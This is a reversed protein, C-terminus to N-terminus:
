VTKLLYLEPTKYINQESTEWLPILHQFQEELDVIGKSSKELIILNIQPYNDIFINLKLMDEENLRAKLELFDGAKWTYFDELLKIDPSYSAFVEHKLPFSISEYEYKVNNFKLIRCFNAEVMSRTYHSLDKRYGDYGYSHGLAGMALKTDVGKSIIHNILTRCMNPADPFLAHYMRTTLKHTTLHVPSIRKVFKLCFRCYIYNDSDIMYPPLIRDKLYEYDEINFNLEWESRIKANKIANVALADKHEQSMPKGVLHAGIRDKNSQSFVEANYQQKYQETTLNHANKVHLSLNANSINCIRCYVNEYTDAFAYTKYKCVFCFVAENEEFILKGCQTCSKRPRNKQFDKNGQAIHERTSESLQKGFNFHNEGSLSESHQQCLSDTKFKFNEFENNFQKMTYNHSTIHAYTLYQCRADIEDKGEKLCIPCSVFEILKQKQNREEEKRKLESQKAKERRAQMLPSANQGKKMNEIDQETPKWGKKHTRPQEARFKKYESHQWAKKLSISTQERSEKSRRKKLTTNKATLPADPFQENYQDVTIKHEAPIHLYLVKSTLNCIRCYIQDDTDHDSKRLKRYKNQKQQESYCEECVVVTAYNSQVIVEKRCLKCNRTHM